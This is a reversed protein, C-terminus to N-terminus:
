SLSSYFFSYSMNNFKFVLYQSSTLRRGIETPEILIDTQNNNNNKAFLDSKKIFFFFFMLFLLCVYVCVCM